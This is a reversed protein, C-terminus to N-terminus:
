FTFSIGVASYDKNRGETTTYYRLFTILKHKGSFDIIIGAEPYTALIPTIKFEEVGKWEVEGTEGENNADDCTRFRFEAGGSFGFGLFPSVVYPVASRL